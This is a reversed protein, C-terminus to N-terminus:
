LLGYIDEVTHGEGLVSIEFIESPSKFYHQHGAECGGPGVRNEGMVQSVTGTMSVCSEMAPVIDESAERCGGIHPYLSKACGYTHATHFLWYDFAEM